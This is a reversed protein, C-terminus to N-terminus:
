REVVLASRNLVVWYQDDYGLYGGNTEYADYGRAAAFRGLDSNVWWADSLKQLRAVVDPTQDVAELRQREASLQSVWTSHEAYLSRSHTIRADPRLAMRIVGAPNGDAYHQAVERMTTVYTGNGSIIGEAALGPFYPGSKFEEVFRPDTVGRFFERGGAAVVADVGHSDALAPLRDYGQLRYIEGLGPDSIEDLSRRLKSRIYSVNMTESLDRGKSYNSDSVLRASAVSNVSLGVSFEAFNQPRDALEFARVAVRLKDTFPPIGGRHEGSRVIATALRKKAMMLANGFSHIM